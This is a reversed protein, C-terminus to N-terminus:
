SGSAFFTSWGIAASIRSRLCRPMNILRQNDPGGLETARREVVTGVVFAALMMRRAETGPQGSPRSASADDVARGVLDAHIGDVLRDVHAVEVGRDQVQHAEIVFAEGVAVGAEVEAQGADFVCM